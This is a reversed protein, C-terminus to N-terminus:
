FEPIRLYSRGGVFNQNEFVRTPVNSINIFRGVTNEVEVAEFSGGISFYAGRKGRWILKPSAKLNRIRVRNFDLTFQDDNNISENGFGFFNIAFNPSTYVGEIGLNWNGFVNAFEGYYRVDYGSTAFFYGVNIRHQQSFPNRNLSNITFTNQLGIKLGDDPNFGISPILQNVNKKIKKHDYVNLEYKDSLKKAVGTEFTNKKSKFDYVKVRSRNNIKYVDNNQGGIIKLAILDNGKGNVEFVDDDDLGYIWVQRTEDSSYTVDIFKDSKEGGKIRFAQVRTKGDPLRTIEFWDDKDTGSIVPYKKLHHYYTRAIDKLNGKRAILSAKIKDLIGKDMEKPFNEFAKEIVDDTLRQQILGAEELWDNLDHEDLVALDLPFPEDNFWRVNRIEAKYPQMLRLGPIVRTAYSLFLGDFNSFVQDRDRPIPKYIKKGDSTEFEAWRWQDEHRDWDGLLMDFLRSKIYLREDVSAKDKSRLEELLDKTSIIENSNGFSAVNGHGSDVGSKLLTCSMEMLIM